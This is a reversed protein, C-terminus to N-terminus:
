HRKTWSNTLIEGLDIIKTTARNAPMRTDGTRTLMVDETPYAVMIVVMMQLSCILSSMSHIM